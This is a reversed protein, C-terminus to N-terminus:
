GRYGRAEGRGWVQGREGEECVDVWSARSRVEQRSEGPRVPGALRDEKGPGRACAALWVGVPASRRHGGARAGGQEAAEEGLVM